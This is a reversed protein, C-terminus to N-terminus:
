FLCIYKYRNPILLDNSRINTVNLRRMLENPYTELRPFRNPIKAGTLNNSVNINNNFICPFVTSSSQLPAYIRTRNSQCLNRQLKKCFNDNNRITSILNQSQQSVINDFTTPNLCDTKNNTLISNNENNLGVNASQNYLRSSMNLFSM